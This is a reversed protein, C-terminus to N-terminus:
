EETRDYRLQTIQESILGMLFVIISLLLLLLSMNTFRHATIFWYLYYGLGLLFLFISVPLFIRFPSFITAIRSIILFFRVGDRFIKIKSRGRREQTTIPIFGVSHGSRMFALTLTAPYSFTNPLMYIYRKAIERKAARFGSTLDEIKRNAVYSALLNYIKNALGRHIGSHSGWGRAGVVMEYRDMEKLLRPIDEPKHQGDGDMMVVIDGRARRLGTKIAAGNGMCYPHSIVKAGKEKAISASNDESLDDIVLVEWDEEKIHNIKDLLEGINEAENHVPIIISVRPHAKKKQVGKM